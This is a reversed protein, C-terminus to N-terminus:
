LTVNTRVSKGDNTNGSIENGYSVTVAVLLAVLVLSKRIATKM